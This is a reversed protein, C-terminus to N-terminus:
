RVGDDWIHGPYYGIRHPDDALRAGASASVDRGGSVIVHKSGGVVPTHVISEIVRPEPGSPEPVSPEPVRAEPGSPGPVLADANTPRTPARATASPTPTATAVPPVATAQASLPEVADDLEDCSLEEFDFGAWVRDLALDPMPDPAPEPGPLRSSRGADRAGRPPDPASEDAVSCVPARSRVPETKPEPRVPATDDPVEAPLDAPIGAPVDSVPRSASETRSATLGHRGAVVRDVSGM